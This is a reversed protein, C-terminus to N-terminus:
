DNEERIENGNMLRYLDRVDSMNWVRKFSLGHYNDSERIYVTGDEDDATWTRNPDDPHVFGFTYDSWKFGLARFVEDM